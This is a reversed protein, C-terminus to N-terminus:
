GLKWPTEFVKEPTGAREPIELPKWPSRPDSAVRNSTDEKIERVLCKVPM